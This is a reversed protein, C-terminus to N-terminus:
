PETRTKPTLGWFVAVDKRIEREFDKLTIGCGYSRTCPERSLAQYDIAEELASYLEGLTPMQVDSYTNTAADYELEHHAIM